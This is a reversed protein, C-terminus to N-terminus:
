KGKAAVVQEYIREAEGLTIAALGSELGSRNRKAKERSCLGEM